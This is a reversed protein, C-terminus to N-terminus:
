DLEIGRSILTGCNIKSERLKSFALRFHDMTIEQLQPNQGDATCSEVCNSKLSDRMAYVAATRCLERLDSGSFGETLKAINGVDVDSALNEYKM